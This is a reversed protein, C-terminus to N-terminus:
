TGNNLLQQISKLDFSVNTCYYSLLAFQNEEQEINQEKKPTKEIKEITLKGFVYTKEKQKFKSQMM